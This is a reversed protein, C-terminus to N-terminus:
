IYAGGELEKDSVEGNKVMRIAEDLLEQAEQPDYHRLLKYKEM